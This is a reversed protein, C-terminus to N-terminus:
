LLQQRMLVQNVWISVGAVTTNMEVNDLVIGAGGQEKIIEVNGLLELMM